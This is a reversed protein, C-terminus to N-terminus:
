RRVMILLNLPSAERSRSADGSNIKYARDILWLSVAIHPAM